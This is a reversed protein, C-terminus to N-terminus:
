ILSVDTDVLSQAIAELAGALIIVTVMLMGCMASPGMQIARAVFSVKWSLEPGVVTPVNGSRNLECASTSEAEM